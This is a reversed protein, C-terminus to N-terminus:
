NAMMARPWGGTEFNSLYSTLCDGEIPTMAVDPHAGIVQKIITTGSNYCGCVFIWGKPKLFEFYPKLLFRLLDNRYARVFLEYTLAPVLSLKHRESIKKLRMFM